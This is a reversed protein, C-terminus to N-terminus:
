GRFPVANETVPLDGPECTMVKRQRGPKFVLPRFLFTVQKCHRSRAPNVGTERKLGAPAGTVM